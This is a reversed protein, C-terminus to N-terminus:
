NEAKIERQIIKEKAQSFSIGEKYAVKEIEFIKAKKALEKSYQDEVKIVNRIAKRYDDTGIAATNLARSARNVEKSLSDFSKVSKKSDKVVTKNLRDISRQLLRTEVRTRQLEKQGKVAIAIQVDYNAM